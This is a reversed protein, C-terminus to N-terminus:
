NSFEAMDLYKRGVSWDGDKEDSVAGILREVSDMNRFVRIVKERRRLEEM